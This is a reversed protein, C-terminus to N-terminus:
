GKIYYVYGTLTFTISASDKPDSSMKLDLINFVRPYNELEGVFGEIGSYTGTGSIITYFPTVGLISPINFQNLDLTTTSSVTPDLFSWVNRGIKSWKVRIHIQISQLFKFSHFSTNFYCVVAQCM